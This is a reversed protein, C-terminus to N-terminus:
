EKHNLVIDLICIDILEIPYTGLGMIINYKSVLPKMVLEKHECLDCM